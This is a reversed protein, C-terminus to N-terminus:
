SIKDAITKFVDNIKDKNAGGAQAFDKRGGGGKGGLIDSAIIGAAINAAVIASWNRERSTLRLEKDIKKQIKRVDRKVKDLNAIVYQIFPVIAHGYNANLQHDFM